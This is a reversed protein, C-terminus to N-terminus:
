RQIREVCNEGVNESSQMEFYLINLWDRNNSDVNMYKFHSSQFGIEIVKSKDLIELSKATIFYFRNWIWVKSSEENNIVINIIEM